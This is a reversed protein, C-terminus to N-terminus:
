LTIWVHASDELLVRCSPYFDSEPRPGELRTRALTTPFVVNGRIKSSGSIDWGCRAGFGGEGRGGGRECCSSANGEMGGSILEGGGGM